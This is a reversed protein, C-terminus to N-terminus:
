NDKKKNKLVTYIAYLGYLIFFVGIVYAVTDNVPYFGERRGIPLEKTLVIMIGFFTILLGFLYIAISNKGM